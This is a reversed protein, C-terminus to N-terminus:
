GTNGPMQGSAPDPLLPDLPRTDIGPLPRLPPEADPEDPSLSDSRSDNSPPTGSHAADTDEPSFESPAATAPDGPVGGVDMLEQGAVAEAGEKSDVGDPGERESPVDSRVVEEAPVVLQPAEGDSTDMDAIAGADDALSETVEGSGNETESHGAEIADSGAPSVPPTIPPTVPSGDGVAAVGVVEESVPQLPSPPPKGAEPESVAVGSATENQDVADEPPPQEEGPSQAQPALRVDYTTQPLAPPSPEQSQERQYGWYFLAANLVLLVGFLWPLM